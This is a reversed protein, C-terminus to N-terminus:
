SSWLDTSGGAAPEAVKVLLKGTDAGEFRQAECANELGEAITQEYALKGQDLLAALHEIAEPFRDTHPRARPLEAHAGPEGAPEPRHQAPGARGGGLGHLRLTTSPSAMRRSRM